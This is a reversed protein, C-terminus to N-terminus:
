IVQIGFTQKATAYNRAGGYRVTISKTGKTLRVTFTCNASGDRVKTSCLKTSGNAVTVIGTAAAPLRSARVTLRSGRKITKVTSAHIATALKRTTLTFKTSSTAYSGHYSATVAHTGSVLTAPAACSASANSIKAKCM